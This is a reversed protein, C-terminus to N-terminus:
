KPFSADLYVNKKQNKFVSGSCMIICLDNVAAAGYLLYMFPGGSDCFAEDRPLISELASGSSCLTVWLPIYYMYICPVKKIENPQLLIISHLVGVNYIFGASPAANAASHVSVFFLLILFYIWMYLNCLVAIKYLSLVVTQIDFLRVGSPTNLSPLSPPLAHM